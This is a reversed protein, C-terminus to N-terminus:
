GKYFLLVLLGDLFFIEVLGIVIYDMGPLMPLNRQLLGVAASLLFCAGGFTPWYGRNGWLDRTRYGVWGFCFLTLGGATVWKFDIGSDAVYLAIGCLSLAALVQFIAIAIPKVTRM